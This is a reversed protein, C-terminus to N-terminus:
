QPIYYNKNFLFNNGDATYDGFLSLVYKRQIFNISVNTSNMKYMPVMHFVNVNRQDGYRILNRIDMVNSTTFLFLNGGDKSLWDVYDYLQGGGKRNVNSKHTITAEIITPKMFQAKTKVGGPITAKADIGSTFTFVNPM